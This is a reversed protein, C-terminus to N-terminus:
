SGTSTYHVVGFRWIRLSLLFVAVCVVPALFPAFPPLRFPDPRDLFYLTPFYNIFAMPLVYVFFKQMWEQYITLPYQLMTTGGYTFVNVVETSQVTWFCLTCGAISIALFFLGGGTVVVPLYLFKALTWHPQALAVGLAFAILGQAMRGFRRLLFFETLMQFVTPLPRILMQDFTGRQVYSAFVDNDFAGQFLEHLAFSVSSLGYLFAIEGLSWGGLAKVQTFMVLLAALDAFNGMFSGATDLLFSLRYQMQSRIRSSILRFYLRACDAM